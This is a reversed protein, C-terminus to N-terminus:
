PVPNQDEGCSTQQLWQACFYVKGTTQNVAWWVNGSFSGKPPVHLQVNMMSEPVVHVIGEKNGSFGNTQCKVYAMKLNPEHVFAAECLRVGQRQRDLVVAFARM